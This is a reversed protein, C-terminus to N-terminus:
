QSADTSGHTRGSSFRVWAGKVSNRYCSTAGRSHACTPRPFGTRVLQTPNWLSSRRPARPLAPTGTYDTRQNIAGTEWFGARSLSGDISQQTRLLLRSQPERSARGNVHKLLHRPTRTPPILGSFSTSSTNVASTSSPRSRDATLITSGAASWRAALAAEERHSIYEKLLQGDTLSAGECLHMRLHQIVDSMQSTAM